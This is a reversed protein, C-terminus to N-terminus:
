LQRNRGSYGKRDTRKYIGDIEKYNVDKAICTATEVGANRFGEVLIRCRGSPGATEAMAAMPVVLARMELEKNISVNNNDIGFCSCRM